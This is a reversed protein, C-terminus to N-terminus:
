RSKDDANALWIALQAVSIFDIAATLINQAVLAVEDAVRATQREVESFSSEPLTESAKKHIQDIVNDTAGQLSDVLSQVDAVGGRLIADVYHLSSALHDRAEAVATSNATPNQGDHRPIGDISDVFSALSKIGQSSTANLSQASESLGLTGVASTLVDFFSTVGSQISRWGEVIRSVIPEFPHGVLAQVMAGEIDGGAQAIYELLHQRYSTVPQLTALALGDLVELAAVIADAASAVGAVTVDSLGEGVLSVGDAVGAAIDEVGERIGSTANQIGDRAADVIGITANAIRGSAADVIGSLPSDVGDIQGLAKVATRVGVGVRTMAITQMLSVDDVVLVSDDASALDVTASVECPSSLVLRLQPLLLAFLSPYSYM